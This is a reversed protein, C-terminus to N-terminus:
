QFNLKHLKSIIIQINHEEANIKSLFESMDDICFGALELQFNSIIIKQRSKNYIDRCKVLSLM